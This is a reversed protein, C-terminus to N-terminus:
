KTAEAIWCKSQGIGTLSLHPKLYNPVYDLSLLYLLYPVHDIGIILPNSSRPIVSAVLSLAYLLSDFRPQAHAM